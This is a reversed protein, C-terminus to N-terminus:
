KTLAVFLSNLKEFLGVNAVPESPENVSDVKSLSGLVKM